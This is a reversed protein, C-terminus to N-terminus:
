ERCETVRKFVPLGARMSMGEKEANWASGLAVVADGTLLFGTGGEAVGEGRRGLKDLPPLTTATPSTGSCYRLSM